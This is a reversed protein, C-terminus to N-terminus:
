GSVSSEDRNGGRNLVIRTKFGQGKASQFSVKGGIHYIREELGMLGLHPTIEDTGQGDDVMNLILSQDTYHLNLRIESAHGHKASNGVFEQIARYLVAEQAESLPWLPDNHNLLVHIGSLHQFEQLMEEIRVMFGMRQFEVPKMEHVIHRIDQLGNAAFDRLEQSMQSVQPHSTKTLNTMAGLQIIITSLVHGISDHIDRSIRNRENMVYLEKMTQIHNKLHQASTEHEQEVQQHRYYDERLITMEELLPQIMYFTIGVLWLILTMMIHVDTGNLVSLATTTALVLGGIAYYDYKGPLLRGELLLLLWMFVYIHGDYYTFAIAFITTLFVCLRQGEQSKLVFWSVQLLIIWLLLCSLNVWNYSAQFVLGYQIITMLILLYRLRNLLM